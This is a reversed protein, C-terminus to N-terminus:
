IHFQLVLDRSWLLELLVASTQAVQEFYMLGESGFRAVLAEVLITYYIM